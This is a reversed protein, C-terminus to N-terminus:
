GRRVAVIDKLVKIQGLLDATEKGHQDKEAQVVQQTKGIDAKQQQMTQQQQQLAATQQAVLDKLNQLETAQAQLQAQLQDATAM